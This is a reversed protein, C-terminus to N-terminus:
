TFHNAFERRQGGILFMATWAGFLFSTVVCSAIESASPALARISRLFTADLEDHGQVEPDAETETQPAPAQPLKEPPQRALPTKEDVESLITTSPLMIGKELDLDVDGSTHPPPPAMIDPDIIMSGMRSHSQVSAYEDTLVQLEAVVNELRLVEQIAHERQAERTEEGVVRVMEEILDWIEGHERVWWMGPWRAIIYALESVTDVADQFDKMVRRQFYPRLFGLALRVSSATTDRLRIDPSLRLFADSLQQCFHQYSPRSTEWALASFVGPKMDDDGPYTEEPRLFYSPLKPLLTVIPITSLVASGPVYGYVLVDQAETAYRYWKWHDVHRRIVFSLGNARVYSAHPSAHPHLIFESKRHVRGSFNSLLSLM